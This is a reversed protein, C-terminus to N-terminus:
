VKVGIFDLTTSYSCEDRNVRIDLIDILLVGVWEDGNHDIIHIQVGANTTFFTTLDDIEAATLLAWDWTIFENNPWDADKFSKHEGGRAVRNIANTDMRRSDGIVPNPLVIGDTPASVYMQFM